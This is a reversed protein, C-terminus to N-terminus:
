RVSLNEHAAVRELASEFLTRATAAVRHLYGHLEADAPSLNSCDASYTEFNSLQMLLEAVHRPCECAMTPPLGALDTLTADDFRRPAIAGAALWVADVPAPHQRAPSSRSPMPGDLGSLWAGLAEDDRPELLSQVGAVAFARRAAAGAFAYVLGVAGAGWAAQAALLEPLDGVKLGPAQWILRDAKLGTASRTADALTEFVAVVHPAQAGGQRTTPRLLRRALAAGVVVWRPAAAHAERAGQASQSAGAGGEAHTRAVERLQDMALSAISGIAHGNETLQRLVAVREVDAATYLRHGTPSTSPAVAQYRREWIRLTAVPMHVMRAVAGSRYLLKVAPEPPATTAIRPPKPM